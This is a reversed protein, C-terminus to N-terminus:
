FRMGVGLLYLDIPGSGTTSDGVKSYRDWGAKAFFGGEFDYTVGAGVLLGTGTHSTNETPTAGSESSAELKADTRALGAKGYLSWQPSLPYIGVGALSLASAKFKGDITDTGTPASYDFSGLRAYAGELAFYRNFRYGGNVGFATDTQDLSTASAIGQNALAGDVDGGNMGLRSRGLDLGAYWGAKDASQAHVVGSSVIFAFAAIAKRYM